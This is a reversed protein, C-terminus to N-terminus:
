RWIPHAQISWASSEASWDKSEALPRCRSIQAAMVVRRSRCVQLAAPSAGARDRRRRRVASQATTYVSTRRREGLCQLVYDACTDAIRIDSLLAKASEAAPAQHHCSRCWVLLVYDTHLM